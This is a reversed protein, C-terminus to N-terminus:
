RNRKSIVFIAVDSNLNPDTSVRTHNETDLYIEQEVVFGHQACFDQFDRISPFRKNPTNYWSYGYIGSGQPARGEKVYMERLKKFAFNPFSVIARKGVRLMEEIVRQTAGVTQLTQSLVVVDFSQDLLNTLPQELDGQLIDLGDALAARIAVPDNEIGLLRRPRREQRLRLLLGGDGCGLDLVSQGPPILDLLQDYDLRNASYISTDSQNEAQARPSAARSQDLFSQLMQGYFDLEDPLLFADHGCDSPINCFSVPKGAQVLADALQKSQEPPFLWDSTFSLVLWRSPSHELVKRLEAVDQGLDFLDMARTLTVYSNADFREVFKSGQYALYSGVSFQKEFQTDVDRPSLRTADFKTTMAERSLYTIHGLMRALALGTNPQTPKDYYDGAHFHPDRLIANRAVVDFALAQSTLRPATALLAVNRVRPGHYVAWALAQMGGLSGGVVAHLQKIQLHDILRAQVNVIDRLTILPFSAGFPKRTRPDVSNPGTTGRCGGLVNSCIVFYKDTDISKGPGVVTEWWGPSDTPSHRAVHSDGSVAHCVLIANDRNPSLTGFTEYCIDLQTLTDGKELVLPEDFGVRRAHSSGQSSRVSDSSQFPDSM